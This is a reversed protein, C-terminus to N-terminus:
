FNLSKVPTLPGDSRLQHRQSYFANRSRKDWGAWQPRSKSRNKMGKLPSRLGGRVWNEKQTNKSYPPTNEKGTYNKQYESAITRQTLTRKDRIEDVLSQDHVVEQSRKEDQTFTEEEYNQWPLLLPFQPIECKGEVTIITNHPLHPHNYDLAASLVTQFANIGTEPGLMGQLQDIMKDITTQSGNPAVSGSYRESSISSSDADQPVAGVKVLMTWSEGLRLIDRKTDGLIAEICTGSEPCLNVSLNTLYGSDMGTRLHGIVRRLQEKLAGENYGPDEEDFSATLHWGELPEETKLEMANNPSMTHYRLNNGFSNNTVLVTSAATVIFVHCLGGRSSRRLLYRSAEEVAADLRIQSSEGQQIQFAPLSRFLAHVTDLNYSCLPLLLNLKQTPDSSICGIALRDILRDLASAIQFANRCSGKLMESSIRASNDVLIMVDLPVDSCIKGIFDNTKATVRASVWTALGRGSCAQLADNTLSLTAYTIPVRQPCWANSKARPKVVHPHSDPLPSMQHQASHQVGTEFTYPQEGSTLKAYQQPDTTPRSSNKPNQVIYPTPSYARLNTITASDESGQRSRFDLAQIARSFIGSRPATQHFEKDSTSIDVSGLLRRSPYTLKESERKKHRRAKPLRLTSVRRPPPITTSSHPTFNRIAYSSHRRPIAWPPDIDHEVSPQRKQGGRSKPVNQLEHERLEIAKQYLDSYGESSYTSKQTSDLSWPIESRNKHRSRFRRRRNNRLSWYEACALALALITFLVFIPVLVLAILVVTRNAEGRKALPM